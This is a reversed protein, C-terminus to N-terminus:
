KRKRRHAWPVTTIACKTALSEAFTVPYTIICRSGHFICGNETSLTDYSCTLYKKMFISVCIEWTSRLTHYCNQSFKTLKRAQLWTKKLGSQFHMKEFHRLWISCYNKKKVCVQCLEISWCNVLFWPPPSLCPPLAGLTWNTDGLCFCLLPAFPGSSIRVIVFSLKVLIKTISLFFSRLILRKIHLSIFCISKPIGKWIKSYNM